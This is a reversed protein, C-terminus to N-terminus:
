VVINMLKHPIIIYKKIKKDILQRQINVNQLAIKKIDADTADAAIKITARLKGNIQVIIDHHTTHLAKNDPKPWSATLIDKGFHLENWLYHTIHPTIPSLLRLLIFLGEHILYIEETHDPSLGSVANLIKMTAAAVTNFQHRAMDQNAQQLHQHIERRIKQYHKSETRYNPPTTHTSIAILKDHAQYALGWLRKLFRHTGEIGSQSWELDHEPPAAFIMFLRITDVGYKKILPQPTIVNGKSKSMKQGDKLVMGQTLLANFPENSNLLGIDRLIKHIFRAYLLHMVAHEIGGIYQDVPTWYKARDDLMANDQDPCAYRAYYWSSAVFTDMTDTERKASKGCQPCLTKYFAKHECLPSGQATPILDTPLIVPLDAEPVPVTGCNKCYIIPIPTGWYRQRSIGWDHLRYHIDTSGLEHTKLYAAITQCAANSDLGNFLQSNILKGPGIYPESHYDWDPEATPQIVPSIPLNYQKSFDHDRKDHAPVAMIAGAGYENLVFNAIWIPIKEETIPHMAMLGTDIGLKERTALNAETTPSLRCADIFESITLHRSARSQALPHEPSIALYTVGMLTDPRTTFVDLSTKRHCVKFRITSGQSRGIWHRQMTTVQKPWHTLGELGSLLEEAYATIRFFWQAIKKQEILAGSRWGRGDVVQENALVTQDVPDWNVVSEKKYALGKKYLRLFLWQEWRYYDPQCTNLERNWDYAFGLKKLHQRMKKINKETWEYPSLQRQIAANEAPLGFADWGMPQLVHKGKHRHYRAIVDGITYNRVHGIHLEGSPYPLMSLCYFKEQNLNEKVEFSRHEHWYTQASKEIDAPSYNDKMTDLLM